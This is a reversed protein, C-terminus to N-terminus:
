SFLNEREWYLKQKWELYYGLINLDSMQNQLKHATSKTLVIQFLNCLVGKTTRVALSSFIWSEGFTSLLSASLSSLLLNLREM